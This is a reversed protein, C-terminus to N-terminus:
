TRASSSEKTWRPKTSRTALTQHAAGLRARRGRGAAATLAPGRPQGRHLGGNAASEVFGAGRLDRAEGLMADRAHQAHHGRRRVSRLLEISTWLFPWRGALDADRRADVM